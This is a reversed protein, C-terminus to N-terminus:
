ALQRDSVIGHQKLITQSVRQVVEKQLVLEQEGDMEFIFFGETGSSGSTSSSSGGEAAGGGAAGPNAANDCALGRQSVPLDDRDELMTVLHQLNKVKIGNVKHVRTHKLEYGSTIDSALIQSVIVVEEGEEKKFYEQLLQLLATPANSMYKRQGFEERLYDLTLPTFVLGGYIFYRPTKDWQHEPILSNSPVLPVSINLVRGDRLITLEVEEDPFKDLLAYSLGVREMNRFVITGDDAVDNGAIAMIVDRKKLVTSTSNTTSDSDVKGKRSPDVQCVVIGTASVGAPLDEVRVDTMGLYKRFSPNELTQYIIGLTVFGTYKHHQELDKLFRNVVVTPIIYGISQAEDYGQFAVGVVKGDKNVAPGGSNGANIAADIQTCLLRFNGHTYSLIDNRSVVGATICLSDGGMPYGVVVLPDQLMPTEGFTLPNVDKWFEEDDVTVVALDCEHGSAILRAPYKKADGHKRILIRNQNAVVHANTIIRRDEIIFGSGTTKTQRRMQWPMAFSPDTYDVFVKVVSPFIANFGGEASVLPQPHPQAHPPVDPRLVEDQESEERPEIGV